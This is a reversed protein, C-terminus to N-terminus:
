VFASNFVLIFQLFEGAYLTALDIVCVNFSVIFRGYVCATHVSTTPPFM